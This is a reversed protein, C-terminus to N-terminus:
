PAAQRIGKLIHLANPVFRNESAFRNMFARVDDPIAEEALTANLDGRQSGVLLASFATLVALSKAESLDLSESIRQVLQDFHNMMSRKSEVLAEISVNQEITQELRGHLSLFRPEKTGYEYFLTVFDNDTVRQGLCESLDSCFRALEENYLALLVEERTKFYLYLTGKVVGAERALVAMSFGEHGAADYHASAAALITERRSHKQEATRARKLKTVTANM